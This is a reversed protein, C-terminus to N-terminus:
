IDELIKDISPAPIYVTKSVLVVDVGAYAVKFTGLLELGSNNEIETNIEAATPAYVSSAIFCPGM